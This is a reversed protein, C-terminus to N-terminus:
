DPHLVGLYFCQAKHKVETEYGDDEIKYIFWEHGAQQTTTCNYKVFATIDLPLSKYVVQLSFLILFLLAFQHLYIM